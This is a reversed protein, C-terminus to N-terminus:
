PVQTVTFTQTDDDFRIEYTRERGDTDVTVEAEKGTIETYLYYEGDAEYIQHEYVNVSAVIRSDKSVEIGNERCNLRPSYRTGGGKLVYIFIFVAIAAAAAGWAILKAYKTRATGLIPLVIFIVCLVASALHHPFDDMAKSVYMTLHYVLFVTMASLILSSVADGRRIFHGVAGM